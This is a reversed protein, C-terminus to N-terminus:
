SVRAARLFNPRAPRNPCTASPEGECLHAAIEGLPGIARRHVMQFGGALAPRRRATAPRSAPRGATEQTATPKYMARWMQPVQDLPMGGRESKVCIVEGRSRQFGTQVAAVSGRPTGHRLVVVQPYRRTLEDAVEITADTSGDDIIILEFCGTLEPMVDLIQEVQASLTSQMNRVPLLVSLSREL